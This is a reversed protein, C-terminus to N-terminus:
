IDLEYNFIKFDDKYKERVWDKMWDETYLKCYYNNFDMNPHNTYLEHRNLHPITSIKRANILSLLKMVDKNYTEYKGIFSINRSATRNHNVFYSQSFYLFDHQFISQIFQSFTKTSGSRVTHYYWSALRTYPNRVFTFIFYNHVDGFSSLDTHTSVIETGQNLLLMKTLSSGGTKPIHLFGWKRSHNVLVSM